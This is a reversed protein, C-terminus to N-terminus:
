GVKQFVRNHGVRLIEPFARPDIEAALRSPGPHGKSAFRPPAFPTELSADDLVIVGGPSLNAAVCEWDARAVEYDHNGDIYVCSWRQSAIITRAAVDTSFARVLRPAGLQFAAFNALTDAQYDLGTLYRSVSDGAPSFPSIGCVDQPLSLRRQLLAALSLAQGRYVGIELYNPFKFRGFLQWWMTHFADEGFGRREQQFYARHARLEPDLRLHFFRHCALYYATPDALSSPWDQLQSELGEADASRVLAASERRAQGANWQGKLFNLLPM